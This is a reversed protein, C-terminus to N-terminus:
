KRNPDPKAPAPTGPRPEDGETGGERHDIFVVNDGTEGDSTVEVHRIIVGGPADDDSEGDGAFFFQGGGSDPRSPKPLRARQDDNLVSKLEDMSSRDLASRQRGLEVHAPTNGADDGGLTIFNGFNMGGGGDKEASDVAAAWKTNLASAQSGYRSRIEDIKTKQEATLDAFGGAANLAREAPSPKFIRPYTRERVAREFRERVDGPMLPAIIRANRQNLDRVPIGLKRHADMLAQVGQLDDPAGARDARADQAERAQERARLAADLESEYTALAQALDSSPKRGDLADSALRTLEINEGALVGRPLLERRRDFREVADFRGIQEPTLLSKVDAYFQQRLVDLKAAREGAQKVMAEVQKQIDEQRMDNHDFRIAERSQKSVARCETIYADFLSEAAARQDQTLSLLGSICSFDEKTLRASPFARGAGGGVSLTRVQPQVLAAQAGPFGALAAAVLGLLVNPFIRPRLPNPRM